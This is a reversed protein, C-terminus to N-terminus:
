IYINEGDVIKCGSLLRTALFATWAKITTHVICQQHRPCAKQIKQVMHLMQTAKQIYNLKVGRLIWLEFNMWQFYLICLLVFCFVLSEKIGPLLMQGCGRKQSPLVHFLKIVLKLLNLKIVLKLLNRYLPKIVQWWGYVLCLLLMTQTM